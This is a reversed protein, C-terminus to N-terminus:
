NIKMLLMIFLFILHASFHILVLSPIDGISFLNIKIQLRSLWTRNQLHCSKLLKKEM